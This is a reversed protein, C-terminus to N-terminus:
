GIIHWSTFLLLSSCSFSVFRSRCDRHWVGQQLKRSRPRRHHERLGSRPGSRRPGSVGQVRPRGDNARQDPCAPSTRPPLADMPLDRGPPSPLGSRQSMPEKGCEAELPPDAPPRPLLEAPLEPQPMAKRESPVSVAGQPGQGAQLATSQSAANNLTRTGPRTRNHNEASFPLSAYFGLIQSPLAFLHGRTAELRSCLTSSSLCHRCCDPSKVM